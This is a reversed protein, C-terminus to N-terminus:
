FNYITSTTHTHFVGKRLDQQHYGFNCPTWTEPLIESEMESKLIRSDLTYKIMHDPGSSASLCGVFNRSVFDAITCNVTFLRVICPIQLLKLRDASIQFEVIGMCNHPSPASLLNPISTDLPVHCDSITSDICLSSTRSIILSV